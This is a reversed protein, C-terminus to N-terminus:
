AALARDDAPALGRPTTLGGHQDAYAYPHHFADLAHEPAVVFQCNSCDAHDILEVLIAGGDPDWHLSVELPGSSRHALERTRTM